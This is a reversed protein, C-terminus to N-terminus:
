REHTIYCHHRVHAARSRAFRHVVFGLHDDRDQVFRELDMEDPLLEGAKLNTYLVETGITGSQFAAMLATLDQSGVVRLREADWFDPTGIGNLVFMDVGIAELQQYRSRYYDANQHAEVALLRM